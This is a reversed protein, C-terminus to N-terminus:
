LLTSSITEGCLVLRIRTVDYMRDTESEITLNSSLFQILAEKDLTSKDM